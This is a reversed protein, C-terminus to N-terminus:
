LFPLLPPLLSFSFHGLLPSVPTGWSVEARGAGAGGGGDAKIHKRVPGPTPTPPQLSPPHPPRPLPPIHPVRPEANQM